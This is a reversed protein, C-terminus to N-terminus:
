TYPDLLKMFVSQILNVEELIAKPTVVFIQGQLIVIKLQM